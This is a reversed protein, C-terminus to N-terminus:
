KDFFVDIESTLQYNSSYFWFFVVIEPTLPSSELDLNFIVIIYIPFIHSCPFEVNKEIKLTSDMLNGRTIHDQLLTALRSVPPPQSTDGLSVPKSQSYGALWKDWEHLYSESQSQSRECLKCDTSLNPGVVGRRNGSCLKELWIHVPVNLRWTVYSLNGLAFLPNPSWSSSCEKTSSAVESFFHSNKAM